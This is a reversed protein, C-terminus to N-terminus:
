CVEYWMGEILYWSCSNTGTFYGIVHPHPIPNTITINGNADPAPIIIPDGNTDLPGDERPRALSMSAGNKTQLLVQKAPIVNVVELIPANATVEIQQTSVINNDKVM